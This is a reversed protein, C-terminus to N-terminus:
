KNARWLRDSVAFLNALSQRVSAAAAYNADLRGLDSEAREAEAIGNLRQVLGQARAANDQM